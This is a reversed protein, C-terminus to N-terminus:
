KNLIFVLGKSGSAFLKIEEQNKVAWGFKKFVKLLYELSFSFCGNDYDFVVEPGPSKLFVVGLIGDKAILDDLKIFINSLDSDFVFSLCATILDYRRKTIKLDNFDCERAETYIPNNNIELEKALLLMNRSIDVGILSKIAVVQKLYAGVLGTGCGLDLALMDESEEESEEIYKAIMKSLLEPARYKQQVEVYNEYQASLSNYDEQIVQLPIPKLKVNKNIVDLRYKAAILKGDLALSAELESRAKDFALNFLYCRALHYHALAFDPKLKIVFMFRMKADSINGKDMHFLGLNYNTESLNKLKDQAVHIQKIFNEIYCKVKKPLSVIFEELELIKTKM